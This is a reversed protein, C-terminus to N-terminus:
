RRSAEPKLQMRDFLETDLLRRKGPDAHIDALHRALNTIACRRRLEPPLATGQKGFLMTAVTYVPVPRTVEPRPQFRWQQLAAASAQAFAAWFGEAPEREGGESNWGKLLAFHSTSGDADILYGVGVCVQVARDAFQPPYAPASLKVGPPLTWANKIGGENAVRVPEAAFAPVAGALVLTLWAFRRFRAM